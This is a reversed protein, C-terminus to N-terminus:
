LTNHQEAQAYASALRQALVTWSLQAALQDRNVLSRSQTVAVSSLTRLCCAIFQEKTTGAPSNWDLQKKLHSCEGVESVIVPTGSAQYDAFKIPFRSQNFATDALPLLGYDLAAAFLRCDLPSLHGLYDIRARTDDPLSDLFDPPMGCLALRYNHGPVQQQLAQLAAVCWSLEDDTRGMFGAYVAGPQLGLQRRAQQQDIPAFPWFGNHLVTVFSSGATVALKRLYNSCVTVGGARAPFRSETHRVLLCSLKNAIGKLPKKYLGNTWLDDWDYFFNTAKGTSKLYWGLYASFPFPQFTHVIDCAPYNVALRRIFNLPNTSPTFLGFGRFTSLIRYEVGDRHEVRDRSHRDWDVAFVTVQHGLAQLGIALNHWRFYTGQEHIFEVLFNIKLASSAM